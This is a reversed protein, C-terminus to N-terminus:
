VPELWVSEPWSQLKSEWEIVRPKNSYKGPNFQLVVLPHGNHSHFGLLELGVVLMFRLAPSDPHCCSLHKLEPHQDAGWRHFDRALRTYYRGFGNISATGIANYHAETRDSNLLMNLAVTPVGDHYTVFSYPANVFPEVLELPDIGMLSYTDTEIQRPNEIIRRVAKSTARHLTIETM